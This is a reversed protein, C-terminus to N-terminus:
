RNVLRSAGKILLNRCQCGLPMLEGEPPLMEPLNAQHFPGQLTYVKSPQSKLAPLIHLCLLLSEHWTLPTRWPRPLIYVFANDRTQTEVGRQAKDRRVKDKYRSGQVSIPEGFSAGPINRKPSLREPAGQIVHRRTKYEPSVFM